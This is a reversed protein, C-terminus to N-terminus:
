YGISSFIIIYEGPTVPLEYKGEIDSITGKHQDKIGINVFPVAEKSEVDTIKGKIVTNQSLLVSPFFIGAIIFLM